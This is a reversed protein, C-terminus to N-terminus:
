KSIFQYCSVPLMWAFQESTMFFNWMICSLFLHHQQVGHHSHNWQPKTTTHDQCNSCLTFTETQHKKRRWFKEKICAVAAYKLRSCPMCDWLEALLVKHFKLPWTERLYVQIQRMMQQQNKHAVQGKHRNILLTPVSFSVFPCQGWSPYDGLLGTGEEDTM